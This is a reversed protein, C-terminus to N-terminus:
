FPRPGYVQWHLLASGQDEIGAQILIITLLYTHGEESFVGM